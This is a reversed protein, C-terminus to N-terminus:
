LDAYAVENLNITVHPNEKQYEAIISKMVDGEVGDTFWIFDLTVNEKPQEASPQAPAAHGGSANNDSSSSPAAGGGGCAAAFVLLLSMVAATIWKNSMRRM